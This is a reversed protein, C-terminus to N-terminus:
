RRKRKKVRKRSKVEIIIFIITLIVIFYFFMEHYISIDGLTNTYVPLRILGFLYPRTVMVGVAEGFGIVEAGGSPSLNPSSIIQPVVQIMSNVFYIYAVILIPIILFKKM